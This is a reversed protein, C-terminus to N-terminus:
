SVKAIVYMEDMTPTPSGGTKELTIAFAQAHGFSKMKQIHYIGKETTIMGADVPKGDVIAWLQYQKGAPTAPLNTPDVYVQGTNKMWYIKALADPAHPTGNLVVPLANKDSMVNIDTKMALNARSQQEIKNQAVQLESNASQYKSYYSYNLAISGILLIVAAAAAFKFASPIRYIKAQSSNNETADISRINDQQSTSISAFIKNKVDASPAVAHAQAYTELSMEIEKIEKKLEPFEKVWAEVQVKEEPSSLGLAYLELLGSSIIDEKNM